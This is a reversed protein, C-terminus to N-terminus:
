RPGHRRRNWSVRPGAIPNGQVDVIAGSLRDQVYDRLADHSTLKAVKPRSARRDRHWQAMSARYELRYTRTSANRRLERSIAILTGINPCTINTDDRWGTPVM